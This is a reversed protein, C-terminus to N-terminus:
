NLGEPTSVLINWAIQTLVKAASEWACHVAMREDKSMGM